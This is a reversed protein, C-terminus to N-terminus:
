SASRTAAEVRPWAILLTLSRAVLLVYYAIWIGTNGMAPVAFTTAALFLALSILMGNRMSATQTAGIFIGDLLFSWIGILPAAIVWALWQRATHRTTEDTTLLNIIHEGAISFVAAFALASIAGLVVAANIAKKFLEHSRRGVSYGTLAECADSFGDMCYSAFHVMHLLVTNAALIVVGQRSSLVTMWYFAFTLCLTRIFLDRSIRFYRLLEERNFLWKKLDHSSLASNIVHRLLWLGVIVTTYESIVTALAVGAIDLDTLQFVAINLTVNLLNLILQLMLVDRMRQLGILTGLIAYNLLTAPASFIRIHFYRATLEQWQGSDQMAALGISLLPEQLIFLLLSFISGLLLARTCVQAIRHTDNAGHAQAVLGGTAMRLFGFVWYISSFIVAGVATAAVWEPSGMRGMVATDVIGVLPVTSNSIMVPIALSLVYRRWQAPNANETLLLHTPKSEVFRRRKPSLVPRYYQDTTRFHLM